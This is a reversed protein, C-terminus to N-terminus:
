ALNASAEMAHLAEDVTTAVLLSARAGPRLVGEAVCRDLFVLLSDYFGCTNLLCIPKAHIRLAQWTLVEFLEEMTGFGGPLVLFGDSLDGMRAKRTHMTDVVLLETCRTHAVEKEVLVQPVVGVVLGGAALAADAVAGMLGVTAGGYVLGVGREALIRGVDTAATRYEARAGDMSACFVCVTRLGM